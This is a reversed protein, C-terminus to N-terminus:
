SVHQLRRNLARPSQLDFYSASCVASFEGAASWIQNVADSGSGSQREGHRDVLEEAFTVQGFVARFCPAICVRRTSVVDSSSRADALFMLVLTVLTQLNQCIPGAHGM